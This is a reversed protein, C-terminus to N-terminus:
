GVEEVLIDDYYVEANHLTELRIGGNKLPDADTYETVFEDDIYVKIQDGIAIVKVTHWTNYGLYKDERTLAYHEDGSM